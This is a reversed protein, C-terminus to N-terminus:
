LYCLCLAGTDVLAKLEVGEIVVNTENADTVLRYTADPNSYNVRVANYTGM